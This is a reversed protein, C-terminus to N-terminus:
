KYFTVDDIWIDFTGGGYPVFEISWISSPLFPTASGSTLYAFPLTLQTWSLSLATGFIYANGYCSAAACTGGYTTSETAPMQGVVKLYASGKAWFKIGTYGTANFTGPTENLVPNNLLFALGAYSYAYGSVHMAYLSASVRPTPILQPLAV